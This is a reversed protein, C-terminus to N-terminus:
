GSAPKGAIWYLHEDRELWDIFSSWGMNRTEPKQSQDDEVVWQFTSEHAAAIRSGRDIMGEYHLNKLFMQQVKKQEEESLRICSPKFGDVEAGAEYMTKILDMKLPWLGESASSPEQGKPILNNLIFSTMENVSM